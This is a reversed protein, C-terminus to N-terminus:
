QLAKKIMHQRGPGVGIWEVPISLYQEIFAIYKKCNEPLEDYTTAKEISTMWGPLTVYEVEVKALLELDAPFGELEEGDVRYKVAVKIEPIQDLIDLKTLNISDYGNILCSHTM